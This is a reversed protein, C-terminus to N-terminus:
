AEIVDTNMKKSTTNELDHEWSIINRCLYSSLKTNDMASYLPRVAKTKFDSTSCDSIKSYNPLIKKAFDYWSCSNSSTIHIIEKINYNPLKELLELIHEVVFNCSNPTGFQDNVIRIPENNQAKKQIKTLFNVHHMSYLWSTRAIIFSCGSQQIAQEGKLKSLGYQNIPNTQEAENYPNVSPLSLTYKAGDFVYDTSIHIYLANYIACANAIHKAGLHNIKHASQYDNEAHEVNTYAACNIIIIPKHQQFYNHVITKNTINLAKHTPTLLNYQSDNLYSKFHSGLMGSAGILLITNM